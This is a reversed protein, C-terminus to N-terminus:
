KVGPIEIIPRTNQSFQKREFHLLIADLGDPGYGKIQYDLLRKRVEVVPIRKGMVRGKLCFIYLAGTNETIAM